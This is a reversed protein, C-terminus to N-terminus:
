QRLLVKHFLPKFFFLLFYFFYWGKVFEEVLIKLIYPEEPDATPVISFVYIRGTIPDGLVDEGNRLIGTGVV